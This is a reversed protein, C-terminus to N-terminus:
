MNIKSSSSPNPLDFHAFADMGCLATTYTEESTPPFWTYGGSYNYRIVNFLPLNVGFLQGEVGITIGLPTSSTKSSQCLGLSDSYNQPNDSVYIYLNKENKLGIPDRSIFRGLKPDYWRNLMYQLGADDDSYVGGTGVYRLKNPDNPQGLTAGFPDYYYTQVLNQNADMLGAVDGHGNYLYYLKNGQQDTMRIGPNFSRLVKGTGDTELVESNGDYFYNITVGVSLKQVRHNDGDYVYTIPGVASNSIRTLRNMADWSYNTAGASTMNGAKDYGYTGAPGSTMENGSDFGNSQNGGGTQTLSTRNGVGDYVYSITSLVGGQANLRTASTLQYLSDYAYTTPGSLDTITTANGVADYQYAYSSLVELQSNLTKLSLLRNTHNTYDFSYTVSVGNPYTAIAPNKMPDYNYTTVTGDVDTVAQTTNDANYGYYITGPIMSNQLTKRNGVADYTYTLTFNRALDTVSTLRNLKDYGYSKIGTGDTMSMRNGNGDYTYSISPTGDSFQISQLRNNPYYNMTKVIGRTDTTTVLNLNGDYTNTNGKGLSDRFM